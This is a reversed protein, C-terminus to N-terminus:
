CVKRDVCTACQGCFDDGKVKLKKYGTIAHYGYLWITTNSISLSSLQNFPLCVILSMQILRVTFKLDRNLCCCCLEFVSYVRVYSNIAYFGFASILATIRRVRVFTFDFSAFAPVSLADPFPRATPKRTPPIRLLYSLLALNAGAYFRRTPKDEM